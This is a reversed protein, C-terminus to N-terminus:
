SRNHNVAMEDQLIDYGQGMEMISRGPDHYVQLGHPLTCRLSMHNYVVLTVQSDIYELFSKVALCFSFPRFFPSFVTVGAYGVM